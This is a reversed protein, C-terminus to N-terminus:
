PQVREARARRKRPQAAPLAGGEATTPAAEAMDIGFVQYLAKMVEPMNHLDLLDEVRESTLEKDEHRLLACVLAPVHQVELEALDGTGGFLDLGTTEKIERIARFTMRMTRPRDLTVAVARTPNETEAM